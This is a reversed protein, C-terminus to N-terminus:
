VTPLHFDFFFKFHFRWLHLFFIHILGTEHGRLRRLYQVFVVTSIVQWFRFDIVWQKFYIVVRREFRWRQHSFSSGAVFHAELQVITLDADFRHFYIDIRQVESLAEFFSVHLLDLFEKFFWADLTKIHEKLFESFLLQPGFYRDIELLFTLEGRGCQQKVGVCM